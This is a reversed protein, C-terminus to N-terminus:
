NSKPGGMESQSDTAYGSVDVPGLYKDLWNVVERNCQRHYEWSIGHGGPFLIHKKHARPTGLLNFLPKQADHYPFVSDDTGNIMLIPIKVRPAFNAPDSTPHRKCACIGGILFVGAKFRDEPAIMVPGMLAGWSFGVYALKDLDIDSRTQLYDISRRMDQSRQVYLNRSQIGDPTYFSKELRREYTGKYFPVILARGSKIIAVMHHNYARRDWPNGRAGGGPFWVVTQLPREVDTPLHLYVIVRENPYAADFTIRERRCYGLDQDVSEVRPRLETRDYKYWTNIYSDLVENSVPRFNDFDRHKYEIPAFALEPVAGEGGPYQACRLGNGLDRDWPSRLERHLYYPDGWAGGLINRSQKKGEFGNYCWERVNGIGDYLGFESMVGHSGVPKPGDGFNSLPTVRYPIEAAGTARLWHFITPLHKGSFCAYALAEYWCIGGVPYDAQGQPYTGNRWGAPGFCGTQDRFKQVAQSWPLTEGDKVFEEQWYESKGYGGSDVFAQFQRNTVEYKDILFAPTSPITRTGHWLYEQRLESSPVFVMDSPFSGNRHLLFDIHKASLSAPDTTPPPLDNSRLVEQTMFEAKELKWCHTGFPIRAREIPSRGIYQWGTSDTSYERIFVKVGSPTTTISHARTIRPWRDMLLPDNSIYREAKKALVFASFYDNQAILQDIQAMADQQAWQTTYHEWAISGAIGTVLVIGAVLATRIKHRLVLKAARGAPGVRRAKIPRRQLYRRLDETFEGANQYRRHPEKEIAKCCITELDIPIHRDIQRPRRPQENVIQNIIKERTNGDFLWALTLLEYLTVGLSYIDSRHDVPRSDSEIQEPSMYRPTGVLSGVVTMAREEIIRAVGFDLLVLRGDDTLMLNSPKIDRHIIGESHAYELADAVESILRAVRDFYKRTSAHDDILCCATESPEPGDDTQRDYGNDSIKPASSGQREIDSSKAARLSKIVSDLNHGEIMEMAYYCVTSEAGEAHITVINRHRLKAAARAERRFREVASADVAFGLPLIKLAVQRNLSIQRAQYVVGMGGAGLRRELLFDGVQVNPELGSVLQGAASATTQTAINDAASRAPEMGARLRVTEAACQDCTRLHRRWAALRDAPANEDVFAMMEPKSLCDSM